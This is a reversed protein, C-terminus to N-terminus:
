RRPRSAPSSATTWARAFSSRARAHRPKPERYAAASRWVLSDRAARAHARGLRDQRARLSRRRAALARAGARAVRPRLRLARRPRGRAGGADLAHERPAHPPRPEGLRRAGRRADFLQELGAAMENFRDALDSLESPGGEPARAQLDGRAVAMAASRVRELPRVIAHALLLGAIVAVTASAASVALIKVDDGMHFM